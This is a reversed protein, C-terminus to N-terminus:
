ARLLSPRLQRWEKVIREAATFYWNTTLGHTALRFLGRIFRSSADYALRPYEPGAYKEFVCKLDVQESTSPKNNAGELEYPWPLLDNEDVHTDKDYGWLWGPPQCNVFKPAFVAEDWDLIATLELSDDSQVRVMINRPHLDLHCLCNVEPNFLGLGNMERATQLLDDYMEVEVNVEGLSAALAHKRWRGFYSEFFDLMINRVQPLQTSTIDDQGLEDLVEGGSDLTRPVINPLGPRMISAEPHSQVVGAVTSEVSLLTRIVCGLEQAVVRRQAHNLSDWVSDLDEGAIRHQLVYPKGLANDCTFDMAAISPVPISTRSRIYELTAVQHKPQSEEERPVRLVLNRDSEEIYSPPLTIATIHNFSGGKLHEILPMQPEPVISRLLSSTRLRAVAHSALLRHRVSKPAPWLNRCLEEIRQRFLEEAEQEQREYTGMSISQISYQDSPTPPSPGDTDPDQFNPITIQLQDSSPSQIDKAHITAMIDSSSIADAFSASEPSALFIIPGHLSSLLNPCLRRTLLFM